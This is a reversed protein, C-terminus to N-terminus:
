GGGGHDHEARREHRGVPRHAHRRGEDDGGEGALHREERQWRRTGLHRGREGPDNRREREARAGGREREREPRGNGRTCREEEDGIRRGQDHGAGDRAGVECAPAGSRREAIKRATGSVTTTMGVYLSRSFMTPRRGATSAAVSQWTTTTSSSEGSPVADATAASAAASGRM